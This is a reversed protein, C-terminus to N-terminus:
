KPVGTFQHATIIGEGAPEVVVKLMIGDREGFVRIRVPDGSKTYMSGNKPAGFVISNPDTAIDSVHRKIDEVTWHKPFASKGRLGPWIHGGDLKRNWWRSLNFDGTLIHKLRKPSILNEDADYRGRLRDLGVRSHMGLKRMINEILDWLQHLIGKLRRISNLLARFFHTIKNVWKAVLASVQAIVLPTGLGLTGAEEALWEWLRVALVSVFEAIADRVLTRVFAVVMGSSEVITAMTEAAKGLADMGGHHEGAHARYADGAPGSWGAVQRDVAQRYDQATSQLQSSVNRWTQANAAIQSADGALRDLAQRLPEVHDLLWAVGWSTLTGLPDTVVSLADLTTGIGGLTLDVWSGSKVGRHLLQIDEALYFGSWANTEGGTRAVVLPNVGISM